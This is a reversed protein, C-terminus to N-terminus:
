SEVGAPAKLRKGDRYIGVPIGYTRARDNIASRSYGTRQGIEIL